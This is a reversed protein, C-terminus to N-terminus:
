GRYEGSQIVQIEVPKMKALDYVVFVELRRCAIPVDYVTFSGASIGAMMANMDIAVVEQSSEYPSLDLDKDKIYREDFEHFYNSKKLRNLRISPRVREALSVSEKLARNIKSAIEPVDMFSEIVIRADENKLNIIKASIKGWRSSRDSFYRDYALFGQAYFRRNKYKYFYVANLHGSDFIKGFSLDYRKIRKANDYEREVLGLWPTFCVPVSSQVVSEKQASSCGFIMFLLLIMRCVM